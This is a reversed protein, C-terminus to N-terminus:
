RRLNIKLLTFFERMPKEFVIPLRKETIKDGAGAYTFSLWHPDEEYLNKLYKDFINDSIKLDRCVMDRVDAIKMYGFDDKKESHIKTISDKLSERVEEFSPYNIYTSGRSYEVNITQKFTQNFDSILYTVEAPFGEFDFTAYNTLGLFTTRSRVFDYTRRSKINPVFAESVVFKEIVSQLKNIRDTRKEILDVKADELLNYLKMPETIINSCNKNIISIYKEGIKKSDGGCKNFVDSTIFPIPVGSGNSAEKIRKLFYEFINFNELMLKTFVKKLETSDKKEILAAINEGEDTLILYGNEKRIFKLYKLEAVVHKVVKINVERPKFSFGYKSAKADNYDNIM